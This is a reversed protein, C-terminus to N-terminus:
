YAATGLPGYGFDPVVADNPTIVVRGLCGSRGNRYRMMVKLMIAPDGFVGAALLMRASVTAGPLVVSSVVQAGASIVAAPGIVSPGYLEAGPEIIADDGILVPGQVVAPEDVCPTGEPLVVFTQGSVVELNGSHFSWFEGFDRQYVNGANYVGLTCGSDPM